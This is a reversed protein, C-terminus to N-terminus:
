KKKFLTCNGADITKIVDCSHSLLDVANKTGTWLCDDMWIYGGSRVKPLYLLVDQTSAEKSHNGDIYLIDISEIFAAAKASTMRLTICYDFLDYRQLMNLYSNYIYNLDVRSWWHLNEVDEEPSDLYKICEAREWPDIAIVQGKGLLKLTSATPFISSGGFAGIEVCTEPKTAAILDIFNSAKEKSCWGEILPLGHYIEEKLAKIRFDNQPSLENEIKLAEIESSTNPHMSVDTAGLAAHFILLCILIGRVVRVNFFHKERMNVEFFKFNLKKNLPNFISLHYFFPFLFKIELPNVRLRQFFQIYVLFTFFRYFGIGAANMPKFRYIIKGGAGSSLVSLLIPYFGLKRERHGRHERASRTTSLHM